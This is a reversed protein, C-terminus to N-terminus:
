FALPGVTQKTPDASPSPPAASSTITPTPPSAVYRVLKVEPFRVAEERHNLSASYTMGPCGARLSLLQSRFSLGLSNIGFNWEM